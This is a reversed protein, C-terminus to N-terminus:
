YRVVSMGFGSAVKFAPGDARLLMVEAPGRTGGGASLVVLADYLRVEGKELAPNDLWVLLLTEGKEFVLRVTRPLDVQTPDIPKSSGSAALDRGEVITNLDFSAGRCAGFRERLAAIMAARREADPMDSSQSLFLQATADEGRDMAIFLRGMAPALTNKADMYTRLVGIGAAGQISATLLGLFLGLLAPVRGKLKGESRRIDRMALYGMAAGSLGLVPMVLVIAFAQVLGVTVLLLAVVCGGLSSLALIGALAAKGSLRPEAGGEASTRPVEQGSADKM